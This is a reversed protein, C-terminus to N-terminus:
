AIWGYNHNLSMLMAQVLKARTVRVATVRPVGKTYWQVRKSGRVTVLLSTEGAGEFAVATMVRIARETLRHELNSFQDKVNFTFAYVGRAQKAKANFEAVAHKLRQTAGLTMSNGAESVVFEIARCAVNQLPALPAQNNPQVPRYKSLENDKDKLLAYATGFVGSKVFKAVTGLMARNFKVELDRILVAPSVEVEEFLAASHERENVLLDFYRQNHQERWGALKTKMKWRLAATGKLADKLASLKKPMEVVGPTRLRTRRCAEDYQVHWDESYMPDVSIRGKCNSRLKDLHAEIVPFKRAAKTNQILLVDVDFRAGTSKDLYGLASQPALFKFRHRALQMLRFVGEQQTWDQWAPCIVAIRTPVRAMKASTVAHELTQLIRAVTYIPNALGM